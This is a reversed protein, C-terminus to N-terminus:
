KKPEAANSPALISTVEPPLVEGGDPTLMARITEPKLSDPFFRVSGDCMLGHFGGPFVGGLKPVAFTDLRSGEERGVALEDPKTWIVSEAAEVVMLTHSTGDRFQTHPSGLVVSGPQPLRVQTIPGNKPFFLGSVTGFPGVTTRLHTHGPPGAKGPSAYVKPM